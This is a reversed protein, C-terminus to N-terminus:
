GDSRDGSHRATEFPPVGKEKAIEMARVLQMVTADRWIMGGPFGPISPEDHLVQVVLKGFWGIRVGIRGTLM